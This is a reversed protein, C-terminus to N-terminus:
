KYSDMKRSFSKPFPFLISKYSVHAFVVEKVERHMKEKRKCIVLDRPGSMKILSYVKLSLGDPIIFCCGSLFQSLM